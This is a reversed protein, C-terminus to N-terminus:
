NPVWKEPRPFFDPKATHIIICIVGWAGVVIATAEALQPPQALGFAFIGIMLTYLGKGYPGYLFGMNKKYANDLFECPLLQIIEYLFLTLAFLIMYTGVFIVQVDQGANKIGFAGTVGLLGPLGINLGRAFVRSVAIVIEGCSAM